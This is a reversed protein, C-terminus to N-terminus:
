FASFQQRLILYLCQKTPEDSHTYSTARRRCDLRMLLVVVVGAVVKCLDGGVVVGIRLLLLLLPPLLRHAHHGGELFFFFIYKGCGHMYLGIFQYINIYGCIYLRIYINYM